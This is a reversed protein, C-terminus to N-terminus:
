LRAMDQAVTKSVDGTSLLFVSDQPSRLTSKNGNEALRREVENVQIQLTLELKELKARVPAAYRSLWNQLRDKNKAEFYQRKLAILEDKIQNMSYAGLASLTTIPLIISILILVFIKKRYHM